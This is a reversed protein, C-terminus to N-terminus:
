NQVLSMIVVLTDFVQMAWWVHQLEQLPNVTALAGKAQTPTHLFYADVDNCQWCYADVHACGVGVGLARLSLMTGPCTGAFVIIERGCLAYRRRMGCVTVSHQM